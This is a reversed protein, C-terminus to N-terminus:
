EDTCTGALNAPDTRARPTCICATLVAAVPLLYRGEEQRERQFISAFVNATSPTPELTLPYIWPLSVDSHSFSGVMPTLFPVNAADAAKAREGPLSGCVRWPLESGRCTCRLVARDSFCFQLSFVTFSTNITLYCRTLTLWCIGCYSIFYLLLDWSYM